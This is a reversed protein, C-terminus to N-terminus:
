REWSRGRDLELVRRMTELVLPDPERVHAELMRVLDGSSAVSPRLGHGLPERNARHRLDDYGRTGAPEPVIKIEGADSTLEIMPDRQPDLTDLALPRGDVRRAHLNDLAQELRRLNEPRLSPTLDLGRTLEDSGQIVRALAGIVVFFAGARDLEQLIAYPDFRDQTM